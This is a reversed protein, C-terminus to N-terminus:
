TKKKELLLRCVLHGRSQLESTHEESRRVTSYLALRIAENRADSLSSGTARVTVEHLSQGGWTKTEQKLVEGEAGQVASFVFLLAGAILISALRSEALWGCALTDAGSGMRKLLM